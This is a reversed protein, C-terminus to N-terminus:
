PRLASGRDKCGHSRRQRTRGKDAERYGLLSSTIVEYIGLGEIKTSPMACFSSSSILSETWLVQDTM